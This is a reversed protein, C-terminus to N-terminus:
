SHKKMLRCEYKIFMWLFSNQLNKDHTKVLSEHFGIKYFITSMNWLRVFCATIKLTKIFFWLYSDKHFQKKHFNSIILRCLVCSMLSSEYKHLNMSINKHTNISNVAPTLKMLMKSFHKKYSLAKGIAKQCRTYRILSDKIKRM